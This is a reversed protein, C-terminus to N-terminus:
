HNHTPFKTTQTNHSIPQCCVYPHGLVNWAHLPSSFSICNSWSLFPFEYAFYVPKYNKYQMHPLNYPILLKSFYTTVTQNKNHWYSCWPLCQTRGLILSSLPNINLASWPVFSTWAISEPAHLPIANYPVKTSGNSYYHMQSSNFGFVKSPIRPKPLIHTYFPLFWKIDNSGYQLCLKTKGLNNCTLM